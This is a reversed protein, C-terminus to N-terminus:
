AAISIDTRFVPNVIHARSRLENLVEPSVTLYAATAPLRGLQREPGLLTVRCGAKVVVRKLLRLPMVALYREIGHAIGFEQMACLMEAVAQRRTAPDLRQDCGFRTAEWVSESQPLEGSIMDPWLKQVMYPYTTPLLRAVGRLEEKDDFWL